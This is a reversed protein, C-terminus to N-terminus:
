GGETMKRPTHGFTTTMLFRMRWRMKEDDDPCKRGKKRSILFLPYFQWFPLVLEVSTHTM